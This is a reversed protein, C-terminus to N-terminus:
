AVEEAAYVYRSQKPMWDFVDLCVYERGIGSRHILGKNFAEPRRDNNPHNSM